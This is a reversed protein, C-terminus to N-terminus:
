LESSDACRETGEITLHIRQDNMRLFLTQLTNAPASLRLQSSHASARQDLVKMQSTVSGPEPLNHSLGVEVAPLPIRLEGNELKAGPAPSALKM